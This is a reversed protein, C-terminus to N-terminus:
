PPPVIEYATGDLVLVVRDGVSLYKAALDSRALLAFYDDSWAEVRKTETKGDWASDIWRGETTWRFTKDEIARVVGVEPVVTAEKKKRLDQSRAPGGPTTPGSPDSPTAAWSNRM